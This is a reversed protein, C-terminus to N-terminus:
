DSIYLMAQNGWYYRDDSFVLNICPLTAIVTDNQSINVTVKNGNNLANYIASTDPIQANELLDYLPEGYLVEFRHSDSYLVNDNEDVFSVDYYTDPVFAGAVRVVVLCLSNIM